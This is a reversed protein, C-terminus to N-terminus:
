PFGNPLQVRAEFWLRWGPSAVAAPRRVNLETVEPTKRLMDVLTSFFDEKSINRPCVCLTDIDAGAGHVGLRYSGFTFIKAGAQAALSESMGQKLSVQRVWEKVLVNVKGLVEERKLAEEPSEFLGYKSLLEVLEKSSTLDAPTPAATSIPPSLGFRVFSM